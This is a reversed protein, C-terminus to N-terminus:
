WASQQKQRAPQYQQQQNVPNKEFLKKNVKDSDGLCSCSCHQQWQAMISDHWSVKVITDHHNKGKCQSAALKSTSAQHYQSAPVTWWHNKTAKKVNRNQSKMVSM